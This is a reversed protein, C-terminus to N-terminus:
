CSSILSATEGKPKRSQPTDNIDRLRDAIALLFEATEERNMDQAVKTPSFIKVGALEEAFFRRAGPAIEDMATLMRDFSETTMDRRGRRFESLNSRSIGSRDCIGAATIGYYQQTKIFAERIKM